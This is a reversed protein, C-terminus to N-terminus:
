SEPGRRARRHDAELRDSGGREHRRRGESGPATASRPSESWTARTTSTPPSSRDFLLHHAQLAARRVLSRFPDSAVVIQVANELLPRASVLDPSGRELLGVVVERAAVQRVAPEDLAAVARDAFADRDAIEARLYLGVIAAVSVLAALSSLGLALLDRRPRGV